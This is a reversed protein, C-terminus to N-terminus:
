FIRCGGNKPKSTTAKNEGINKDTDKTTSTALITSSSSSANTTTRAPPSTFVVSAETVATAMSGGGGGDVAEPSHEEPEPALRPIDTLDHYKKENNKADQALKYLLAPRTLTVNSLNDAAGYILNYSGVCILIAGGLLGLGSFVFFSTALPATGWMANFIPAYVLNSLSYEWIFYGGGALAGGIGMQILGTLYNSINSILNKIGGAELLRFCLGSCNQTNKGTFISGGFSSWRGGSDQFKKFEANIADVDLSYLDIQTYDHKALEKINDDDDRDDKNVNHEYWSVYIGEDEDDFGRYTRLAAHGLGETWIYISVRNEDSKVIRRRAPSADDVKEEREMRAAYEPDAAM